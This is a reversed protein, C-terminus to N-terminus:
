HGGMFKQTRLEPENSSVSLAGFVRMEGTEIPIIIKLTLTYFLLGVGWVGASILIESMKPWYEWIEGLPTPIFGPVIFGLGKELWVGVVILICDLNFSM